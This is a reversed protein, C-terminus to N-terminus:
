FYGPQAPLLHNFLPATTSSLGNRYVCALALLSGTELPLRKISLMQPWPSLKGSPHTAEMQNCYMYYIDRSM